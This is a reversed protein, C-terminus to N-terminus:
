VHALEQPLSVMTQSAGPEAIRESALRAIAEMALHRVTMPVSRNGAIALEELWRKTERDVRVSTFKSTDAM